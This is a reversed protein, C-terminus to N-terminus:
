LLSFDRGGKPFRVVSGRIHLRQMIVINVSTLCSCNRLCYSFERVKISPLSQIDCYCGLVYGCISSSSVLGCEGRIICCRGTFDHCCDRKIGLRSIMFLVTNLELSRVSKDSSFRQLVTRILYYKNCFRESYPREM